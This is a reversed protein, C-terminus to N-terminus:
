REDLDLRRPPSSTEVLALRVLREGHEAVLLVHAPKSAELARLDQLPTCLFANCIGARMTRPLRCGDEAQFVCGRGYTTDALRSLYANMVEERSAQPHARLYAHVTAVDLFAHDGGAHCCRGRCTACAEGLLPSTGDRDRAVEIDVSPTGTFAEEVVRSLHARFRERRHEPLARVRTRNAPLSVLPLAEPSALGLKRALEARRTQVASSGGSVDHPAPKLKSPSSMFRAAVIVDAAAHDGGDIGGILM